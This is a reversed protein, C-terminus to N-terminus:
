ENEEDELEYLKVIPKINNMKRAYAFIKEFDLNNDEIFKYIIDLSKKAEINVNDKNMLIDFLQLYKYNDENVELKSKRIIVGLAKNNYDNANPCENTVIVIDKPVQTTLGLKNFLYAGSYYGKRGNEDYIYKKEIVKNPNLVKKGFLGETPKYYVGKIFQVLVNEKVLRNIYVYINKFVNNFNEKVITKFYDKIEEIFIPEDFPCNDIYNVLINNYNM